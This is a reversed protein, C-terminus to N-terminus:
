VVSFTVEDLTELDIGVIPHEQEIQYRRGNVELSPKSLWRYVGCKGELPMTVTGWVLTDTAAITVTNITGAM